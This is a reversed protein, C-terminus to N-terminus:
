FSKIDNKQPLRNKTVTKSYLALEKIAWLPTNTRLKNKLKPFLECIIKKRFCPTAYCPRNQKNSRKVLLHTNLIVIINNIGTTALHRTVFDNASNHGKIYQLNNDDLDRLINCISYYTMEECKIDADCIPAVVLQHGIKEAFEGSKTTTNLTQAEKTVELDSRQIIHKFM